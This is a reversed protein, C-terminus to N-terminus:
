IMKVRSRKGTKSICSPLMQGHGEEGNSIVTCTVDEITEGKWWKRSINAVKHMDMFGLAHVM